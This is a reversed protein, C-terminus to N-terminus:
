PPCLIRVDSRYTTNSAYGRFYYQPAAGPLLTTYHALRLRCHVRRVPSSTRHM